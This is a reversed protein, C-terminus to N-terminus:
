YKTKPFSPPPFLNREWRFFAKQQRSQSGRASPSPWKFSVNWFDHSIAPLCSRCCSLFLEAVEASFSLKSSRPLFFFFKKTKKEFRDFSFFSKQGKDTMPFLKRRQLQVSQNINKETKPVRDDFVRFNRPHVLLKKTGVHQVDLIFFDSVRSSFKGREGSGSM